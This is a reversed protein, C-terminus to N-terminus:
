GGNVTLYAVGRRYSLVLISGLVAIWVFQMSLINALLDVSPAVFLKSPGYIMYAFPLAKAIAQLWHPYFDLPILFGGLIFVFKQYIWLFPSVEEVLFASLGILCAICFNMIWTGLLAVLAFAWGTAAPPAGVLWWVVIGGFVANMLARFVTEGMSSSFQYLLFNYPKNLIYAISGDKVNDSIVNALRPRSLEITEAMMLYWMTSYLTMGNLTDAGAAAFTVKWLQYFIWMFPVIMLSRGILEGPYALSNILTIQFIAWYKKIFNM